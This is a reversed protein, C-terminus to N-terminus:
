DEECRNRLKAGVMEAAKDRAKGRELPPLMEVGKRRGGESMRKKVEAALQKEIELALV